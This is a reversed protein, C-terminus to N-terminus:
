QYIKSQILTKSALQLNPIVRHEPPYKFVNMIVPLVMQVEAELIDMIGIMAEVLTSCVVSVVAEEM